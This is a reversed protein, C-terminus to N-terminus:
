GRGGIRHKRMRDTIGDIDRYTGAAADLFRSSENTLGCNACSVIIRAADGPTRQSLIQEDIYAEEIDIGRAWLEGALDGYTWGENKM